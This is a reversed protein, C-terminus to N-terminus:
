LGLLRDWLHFAMCSSILQPVKRGKNEELELRWGLIWGDDTAALILTGGVQIFNVINM